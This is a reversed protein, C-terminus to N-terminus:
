LFVFKRTALVADDAKAFGKQPEEDDVEIDERGAKTMQKEAGRKM